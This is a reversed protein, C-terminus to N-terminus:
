LKALADVNVDLITVNAGLGVLMELANVGVNGAGVIVANARKVGPLGSILVGSGGKTKQLYESGIIASMKGAIMSM